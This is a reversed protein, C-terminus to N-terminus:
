GKNVKLLGDILGAHLGEHWALFQLVDEVTHMTILKGISIPTDLAQGLQQATLASIRKGQEKLAEILENEYPPVSPWGSPSTGRAFYENWEPHIVVYDPLAKQLFDEAFVYLHGANWRITNSFGEPQRDWVDEDAQKLRSLTYGRAMSYQQVAGM